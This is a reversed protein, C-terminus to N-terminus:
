GSLPHIPSPFWHIVQCCIVFRTLL